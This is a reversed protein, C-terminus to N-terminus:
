LTKKIIKRLVRKVFRNKQIQVSFFEANKKIVTPYDRNIKSYTFDKSNTLYVSFRMKDVLLLYQEILRWSTVLHEAKKIKDIFSVNESKTQRYLVYSSSSYMINKALILIRCYFEGDQNITLNENWLGSRVCIKRSILFTHAPYYENQIGYDELLDIGESYDKYINLNKINYGINKKEFRGWKCIAIDAKESQLLRIQEEIKNESFLDDSDLWNVYEGKSIEFGYNRAANGGRARDEPRQHYQFRRDNSVYAAIVEVSNDTSGDDVIICEWNTYTQALVSDLTEGILHARNFTPIIISVLPNEM